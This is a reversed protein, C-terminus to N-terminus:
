LLCTFHSWAACLRPDSLVFTHAANLWEM